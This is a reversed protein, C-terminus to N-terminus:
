KRKPKNYFVYLGQKLNNASEFCYATIAHQVKPTLRALNDRSVWFCRKRTIYGFYSRLLTIQKTYQKALENSDHLRHSYTQNEKM